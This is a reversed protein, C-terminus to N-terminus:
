LVAACVVKRAFTINGSLKNPDDKWSDFVGGGCTAIKKFEFKKRM